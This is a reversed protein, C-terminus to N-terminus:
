SKNVTPIEIPCQISFKFPESNHSFDKEINHYGVMNCRRSWNLWIILNNLSINVHNKNCFMFM